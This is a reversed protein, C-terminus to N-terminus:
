GKDLTVLGNDFRVLLAWVIRDTKKQNGHILEEIRCDSSNRSMKDALASMGAQRAIM